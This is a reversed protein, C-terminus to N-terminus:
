RLRFAFSATFLLVREPPKSLNNILFSQIPEEKIDEKYSPPAAVYSSFYSIFILLIFFQILEKKIYEEKYSPLAAAYSLFNCRNDKVVCNSKIVNLNVNSKILKKIGSRKMVNSHNTNVSFVNNKQLNKNIFIYIKTFCIKKMM